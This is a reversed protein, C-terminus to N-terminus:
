AEPAYAPVRKWRALVERYAGDNRYIVANLVVVPGIQENVGGPRTSAELAEVYRALNRNTPRGDGPRGYQARPRWAADTLQTNGALTLHVAYKPTVIRGM